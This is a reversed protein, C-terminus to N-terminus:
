YDKINLSQYFESIEFSALFGDKIPMDIDM